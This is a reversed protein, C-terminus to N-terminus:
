WRTLEFEHNERRVYQHLKHFIRTWSVCGHLIYYQEIDVTLVHKLVQYKKDCWAFGGTAVLAQQIYVLMIIYFVPLRLTGHIFQQVLHHSQSIHTNWKKVVLQFLQERGPQSQPYSMPTLFFLISHRAMDQARTYINQKTQIEEKHTETYELQKGHVWDELTVEMNWPWDGTIPETTALRHLFKDFGWYEEDHLDFQQIIDRCKLQVVGQLGGSGVKLIDERTLYFGLKSVEQHLKIAQMMETKPRRTTNLEGKIFRTCQKSESWYPLDHQNLEYILKKERIEENKRQILAKEKKADELMKKYVLPKEHRLLMLEFDARSLESHLVDGVHKTWLLRRDESLANVQFQPLFKRTIPLTQFLTTKYVGVGDFLKVVRMIQKLEPIRYGCKERIVKRFNRSVSCYHFLGNWDRWDLPCLFDVLLHIIDEPWHVPSLSKFKKNIVPNVLHPDEQHSRKM